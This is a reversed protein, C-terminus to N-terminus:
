SISKIYREKLLRHLIKFKNTIKSYKKDTYFALKDHHQLYNKCDNLFAELGDKHHFFKNIDGAAIVYMVTEAIVSDIEDNSLLYNVYRQLERMTDYLLGEKQMKLADPSIEQKRTKAAWGHMRPALFHQIEHAITRGFYTTDMYTGCLRIFYELPTNSAFYATNTVGYKKIYKNLLKCNEHPSLDCIQTKLLSYREIQNALYIRIVALKSTPLKRRRKVDRKLKVTQRKFKDHSYDLEAMHTDVFHPVGVFIVNVTYEGVDVVIEFNGNDDLAYDGRDYAAKSLKEINEAMEIVSFYYNEFLVM